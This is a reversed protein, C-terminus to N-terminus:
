TTGSLDKARRRRERLALVCLTVGGIVAAAYSASHAWLATLFDVHREAPVAQAIRGVLWVKGTTTLVRGLLGALLAVAAMVLLLRFLNPLLDLDRLRAWRGARCCIALPVGLLVGVWWTAVVGWVLALLTPSTSQVIRPHGITFYEISIRTTVLDHLVGFTVAAFACLIVIKLYQM